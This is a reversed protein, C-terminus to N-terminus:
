LHVDAHKPLLPLHFSFLKESSRGIGFLIGNAAGCRGLGGGGGVTLQRRLEFLKEEKKRYFTFFFKGTQRHVCVFAPASTPLQTGAIESKHQM